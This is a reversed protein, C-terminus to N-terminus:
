WHLVLVLPLIATGMQPLLLTLSIAKSAHPLIFSKLVKKPDTLYM